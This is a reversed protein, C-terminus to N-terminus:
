AAVAEPPYPLVTEDLIEMDEAILVLRDIDDRTIANFNVVEVGIESTYSTVEFFAGFQNLYYEFTHEIGDRDAITRAVMRLQSRDYTKGRIVRRM